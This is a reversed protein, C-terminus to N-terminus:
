RKLTRGLTSSLTTLERMGMIAGEERREARVRPNPRIQRTKAPKEVEPHEFFVPDFGCCAAPSADAPPVPRPPPPPRPPRPAPPPGTGTTVACTVLLGIGTVMGATPV